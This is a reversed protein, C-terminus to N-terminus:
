YIVKKPEHVPRNIVSEFHPLQYFKKRRKKSIVEGYEQFEHLMLVLRQLYNQTSTIKDSDSWQHNHRKLLYEKGTEFDFYTIGHKETYKLLSNYYIAMKELTANAYGEKKLYKMLQEILKALTKCKNEHEFM